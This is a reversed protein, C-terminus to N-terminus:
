FVNLFHMCDWSQYALSMFSGTNVPFMDATPNDLDSNCKINAAPELISMSMSRLLAQCSASQRWLSLQSTVSDLTLLLLLDCVCSCDTVCQITHPISTPNCVWHFAPKLAQLNRSESQVGSRLFCHCPLEGACCQLVLVQSHLGNSPRWFDCKGSDLYCAPGATTVMCINVPDSALVGFPCSVAFFCTSLNQQLFDPCM